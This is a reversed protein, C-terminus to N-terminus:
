LIHGVQDNDQPPNFLQDNIMLSPVRSGLGIYNSFKMDENEKQNIEQLFYICWLQEILQSAILDGINIKVFYVIFIMDMNLFHRTFKEVTINDMSSKQAFTLYKRVLYLPSLFLRQIWIFLSLTNLLSMWLYWFWLFTYIKEVFMNM